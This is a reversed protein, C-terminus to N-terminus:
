YVGLGIAPTRGVGGPLPLIDMVSRRPVHVLITFAGHHVMEVDFDLLDHCLNLFGLPLFFTLSTPSEGISHKQFYYIYVYVYM